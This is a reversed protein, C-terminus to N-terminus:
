RGPYAPSTFISSKKAASPRFRRLETVLRLAAAHPGGTLRSLIPAFQGRSLREGVFEGAAPPDALGLKRIAESLAPQSVYCAAAARAFHRERALAVFNELQRFLM